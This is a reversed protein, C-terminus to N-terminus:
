AEFFEDLSLMIADFLDDFWDSMVEDVKKEWDLFVVRSKIGNVAIGTAVAYITKNDTPIGRKRMWAIIPPLPPRWSALSREGKVMEWPRRAWFYHQGTENSIGDVYQIYYPILVSIMEADEQEVKTNKYINSEPGLTMEGTKPNPAEAMMQHFVQLLQVKLEAFAKTIAERNIQM